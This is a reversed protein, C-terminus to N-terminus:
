LLSIFETLIKVFETKFLIRHIRDTSFRIIYGLDARAAARAAARSDALPHDRPSGFATTSLTFSDILWSVDSKKPENEGTDIGIKVDLHANQLM